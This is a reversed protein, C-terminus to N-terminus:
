SFFDTLISKLLSIIIGFFILEDKRLRAEVIYYFIKIMNSVLRPALPLFDWIYACNGRRLAMFVCKNKVNYAYIEFTM